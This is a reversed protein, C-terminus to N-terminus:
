SAVSLVPLFLLVLLVSLNSPLAIQPVWVERKPEMKTGQPARHTGEPVMKAGQTVMKTTRPDGPGGM